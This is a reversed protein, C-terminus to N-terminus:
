SPRTPESIHILSLNYQTVEIVKGTYLDGDSLVSAGNVQVDPIVSRTDNNAGYTVLDENNIFADGQVDTLYLTDFDTNITTVVLKFGTGRLVNVNSNDITLVDGVKFGSSGSQVSVSNIRDRICM